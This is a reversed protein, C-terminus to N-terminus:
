EGGEEPDYMEGTIKLGDFQKLKLGVVVISEGKPTQEQGVKQVYGWGSIEVVMGDTLTPISGGGPRSILSDFGGNGDLDLTDNGSISLKVAPKRSRTLPKFITDSLSEQRWTDAAAKEIAATIDAVPTGDITVADPVSALVAKAHDVVARNIVVTRDDVPVEEPQPCRPCPHNEIFIGKHKPCARRNM